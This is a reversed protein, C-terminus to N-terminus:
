DKSREQCIKQANVRPVSIVLPDKKGVNTNIGVLRSMSKPKRRSISQAGLVKDVSAQREQLCVPIQPPSASRDHKWTQVEKINKDRGTAM